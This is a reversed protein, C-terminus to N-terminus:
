DPVFHRRLHQEADDWAARAEDSVPQGSQSLAAARRVPGAGEGERPPPLLAEVRALKRKAEAVIQLADEFPLDKETLSRALLCDFRRCVFPRAAYVRCHCGELAACRQPLKLRGQADVVGLGQAKLTAAESKGLAVSAFLNGDCCLGCSLCLQSKLAEM